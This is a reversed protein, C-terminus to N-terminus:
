STVSDRLEDDAIWALPWWESGCGRSETVYKGTDGVSRPRPFARHHRRYRAAAGRRNRGRPPWPSLSYPRQHRPDPAGRDPSIWIQGTGPVDPLPGRRYRNRYELDATDVTDPFSALKEIVLDGAQKARGPAAM